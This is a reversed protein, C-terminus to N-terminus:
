EKTAYIPVLALHRTSLSFTYDLVDDSFYSLFTCAFALSDGFGQHSEHYNLLSILFTSFITPDLSYLYCVYVCVCM